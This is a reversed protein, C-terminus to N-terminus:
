RTGVTAAQERLWAYWADLGDGRTASVSLIALEPNVRKSYGLCREIDFALHPLLDIKNLLMIEAARFMHPYKLPKDEGETISMIVVKACEGLDFLAPCVLNGVNEIMLVSGAPPALTDLGRRLMEADLHCGSGTNIQVVRCGTARIREADFLTEQDGEIVSIGLEEGLDRITRELLTTKGSGPSSMLNLALIGQEEFWSRNREALLDNKALVDQELRVVRARPDARVGPAAVEGHHHEDGDGHHHEHADGHDHRHAGLALVHGSELDTVSPAHSSCGCTACM